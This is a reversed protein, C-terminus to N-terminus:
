FRCTTQPPTVRLFRDSFDKPGSRTELARCTLTACSKLRTAMTTLPCPPLEQSSREWSIRKDGDSTERQLRLSAGDSNAQHLNALQQVKRCLWHANQLRWVDALHHWVQVIRRGHGIVFTTHERLFWSAVRKCLQKKPVNGCEHSWLLIQACVVVM